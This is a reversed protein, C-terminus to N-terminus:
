TRRWAVGRGSEDVGRGNRGDDVARGDCVHRVDLESTKLNLADRQKKGYGEEYMKVDWETNCGEWLGETAWVGEM